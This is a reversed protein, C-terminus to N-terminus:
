PKDELRPFMKLVSDHPNSGDRIMPPSPHLSRTLLSELMLEIRKARIELRAITSELDRPPTAVPIRGTGQCHDCIITTTGQAFLRGYGNCVPCNM